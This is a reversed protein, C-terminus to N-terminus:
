LFCCFPFRARSQLNASVLVQANRLSGIVNVHFAHAEVAYHRLSDQLAVDLARAFLLLHLLRDRDALDDIEAMSLSDNCSNPM